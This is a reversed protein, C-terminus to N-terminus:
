QLLTRQTIRQIAVGIITGIANVIADATEFVHGHTVIETAEHAFGILAILVAILLAPQRPWGLASTLGIMTYVALHAVWHLVGPFAHGVNPISGITFLGLTLLVAAARALSTILPHMAANM